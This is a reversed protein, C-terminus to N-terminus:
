CLPLEGQANRTSGRSPADWNRLQEAAWRNMEAWGEVGYKAENAARCAKSVGEFWARNEDPTM